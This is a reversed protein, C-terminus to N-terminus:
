NVSTDDILRRLKLRHIFVTDARVSVRHACHTVRWSVSSDNTNRKIGRATPTDCFLDQTSVSSCSSILLILVDIYGSILTHLPLPLSVAELTPKLRSHSVIFDSPSISLFNADGGRMQRIPNSHSIHLVLKNLNRM